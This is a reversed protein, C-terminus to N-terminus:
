LRLLHLAPRLCRHLAVPSALPHAPRSNIALAGATTTRALAAVPTPSLLSRQPGPTSSSSFIRHGLATYHLAPVLPTPLSRTGGLVLPVVSGEQATVQQQWCPHGQLRATTVPLPGRGPQSCCPAQNGMGQVLHKRRCVYSSCQEQHGLMPPVPSFPVQLSVHSPLYALHILRCCAHQCFLIPISSEYLRAGVHQDCACPRTPIADLCCTEHKHHAQLFESAAM